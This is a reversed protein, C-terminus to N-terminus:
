RPQHAPEATHRALVQNFQAIQQELVCFIEQAGSRQDSKTLLELRQAPERL